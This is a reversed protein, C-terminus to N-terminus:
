FHVINLPIEDVNWSVRITDNLSRHALLRRLQSSENAIIQTHYTSLRVLSITLHSLLDADVLFVATHLYLYLFRREITAEKSEVNACTIFLLHIFNQASAQNARSLQEILCLTDQLEKPRNSQIVETLLYALATDLHEILEDLVKPSFFVEHDRAKKSPSESPFSSVM